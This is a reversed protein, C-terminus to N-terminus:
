NYFEKSHNPHIFHLMEHLIVYEICISSAQYIYLNITIKNKQPNCSGWMTKMKRIFLAPKEFGNKKIIPYLKNIKNNVLQILREKMFGELQDKIINKKELDLTEIYIKGEEYFVNKKSAKRIIVITDIGFYKISMGSNLTLVTQVGSIQKYEILREAIWKSKKKLFNDIWEESVKQPVTIVVDLNSFAKLSVNKVSKRKLIIQIM